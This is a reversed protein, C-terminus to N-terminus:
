VRAYGLLEIDQVSTILHTKGENIVYIDDCVDIIHKYMHDTILIGKNRQEKRILKKITEVHVPMVQSFPEDLMCFKTESALISYIDVIRQEGSSLKKLKTNYYKAFEPFESVFSSYNLNFDKFIRKLTLTKPIFSFQPLYRIDETLRFSDYLAKGNLRVSRGYPKLEGYIINMLCTKGTGNRGLLGTVKGSEIKLYVDHLVRKTDFELIVSDVELTHIM